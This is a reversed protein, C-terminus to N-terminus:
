QKTRFVKKDGSNTIAVSDNSIAMPRNSSVKATNFAIYVTYTGYKYNASSLKIKGPTSDSGDFFECLYKYLVPCENNLLMTENKKITTRTDGTKNIYVFSDKGETSIKFNLVLTDNKGSGNDELLDKHKQEIEEFVDDKLLAEKLYDDIQGMAVVDAKRRENEMSNLNSMVFISSLIALIAITVILEILTFGKKNLKLKQM